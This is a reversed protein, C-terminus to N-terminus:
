TLKFSNLIIDFPERDFDNNPAQLLITYMTNNKVLTITEIRYDWIFPWLYAKYVDVYANQGNLTITEDSIKFWGFTIPMENKVDEESMDSDPIIQVQFYTNSEDTKEVFVLDDNGEKETSVSWSEPYEFSVGHGTYVSTDINETPNTAKEVDAIPTQARDTDNVAQASEDSTEVGTTVNVPSEIPINLSHVALILLLVGIIILEIHTRSLKMLVGSNGSLKVL